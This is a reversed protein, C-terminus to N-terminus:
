PNKTSTSPTIVPALTTVRRVPAVTRLIRAAAESGDVDVPPVWCREAAAQVGPTVPEVVQGYAALFGDTLVARLALPEDFPTDLTRRPAPDVPDALYADASVASSPAQVLVRAVADPEVAVASGDSSEGPAGSASACSARLVVTEARRRSKSRRAIPVLPTPLAPAPEGPAVPVVPPTLTPASTPTPAPDSITAPPPPTLEVAQLAYGSFPYVHDGFVILRSPWPGVRGSTWPNALLEFLANTFPPEFPVDYWTAWGDFRALDDRTNNGAEYGSVESPRSSSGGRCLPVHDLHYYRLPRPSPDDPLEFGVSPPTTDLVVDREITDDAYPYRASQLDLLFNCPHAFKVGDPDNTKATLKLHRPVVPAGDLSALAHELEAAWFLWARQPEPAAAWAELPVLALRPDAVFGPAYLMCPDIPLRLATYGGFLGVLRRVLPVDPCVSVLPVAPVHLWQWTSDHVYRPINLAECGFATYDDSAGLRAISTGATYSVGQVALIVATTPNLVAVRTFGPLAGVVAALVNGLLSGASRRPVDPESPEVLEPASELLHALAFVNVYVLSLPADPCTRMPYLWGLDFLRMLHLEFTSWDINRGYYRRLKYYVVHTSVIAPHLMHELQKPRDTVHKYAIPHQMSRYVDAAQTARPQSNSLPTHAWV